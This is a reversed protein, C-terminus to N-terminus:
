SKNFETIISELITLELPSLSDVDEMNDAKETLTVLPDDENMDIEVYGKQWLLMVGHYFSEMISKFMEPHTSELDKTFNYLFKGTEMDIGAVEVSGDLIMKELMDNEFSM